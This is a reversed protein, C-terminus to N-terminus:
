CLTPKTNTADSVVANVVAGAEPVSAAVAMGVDADLQMEVLASFPLHRIASSGAKRMM